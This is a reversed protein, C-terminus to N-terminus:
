CRRAASINGARISFRKPDGLTELWADWEDAIILPASKNILNSYTASLLQLWMGDFKKFHQADDEPRTGIRSSLVEHMEIMPNIRSKVYSEIGADTQMYWLVNRPRRAVAHLFVNEALATKACQAPGVIVETLYRFSTADRQPQILYPAEDHRWPMTGTGSRAPLLRHALAYEDVTERVPPLLYQLADRWIDEARAFDAGIKELSM